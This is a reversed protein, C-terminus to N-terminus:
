VPNQDFNWQYLIGSAVIWFSFFIPVCTRKLHNLLHMYNKEHLWIWKPFNTYTNRYKWLQCTKTFQSRLKELKIVLHRMITLFSSMKKTVHFCTFLIKVKIHKRLHSILNTNNYPAYIHFSMWIYFDTRFFICESNSDEM